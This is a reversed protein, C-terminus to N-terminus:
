YENITKTTNHKNQKSKEGLRLHEYMNVYAFIKYSKM